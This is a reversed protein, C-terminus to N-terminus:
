SAPSWLAAVVFLVLATWTAAGRIWNLRLYRARVDRWDAPPAAPDWALIVDYNPEAGYRSTLLPGAVIVALGLATLVFPVGVPPPWLGVLAVVPAVAMAVVLLYNTPSRRAIPLFRHMDRAFGAADRGAYLPHLLTTLTLLLGSWLATAVLSALLGWTALM